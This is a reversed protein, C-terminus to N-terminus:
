TSSLMTRVFTTEDGDLPKLKCRAVLPPDHPVGALHSEESLELMLAGRRPEDIDREIGLDGRPECDREVVVFM